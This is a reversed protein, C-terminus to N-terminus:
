NPMFGMVNYVNVTFVGFVEMTWCNREEWIQSSHSLSSLTKITSGVLLSYKEENWFFVSTIPYVKKRWKERVFWLVEHFKKEERGKRRGEEERKKRKERKEFYYQM